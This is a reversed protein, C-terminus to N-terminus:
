ICFFQWTLHYIWGIVVERANGNASPFVKKKRARGSIDSFNRNLNLLSKRWVLFRYPDNFYSQLRKFICTGSVGQFICFHLMLM